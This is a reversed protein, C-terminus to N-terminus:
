SNEVRGVLQQQERQGDAQDVVATIIRKGSLFHPPM